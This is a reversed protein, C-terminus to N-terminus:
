QAAPALTLTTAHLNDSTQKRRCAQCLALARMARHDKERKDDVEVRSTGARLPLGAGYSEQVGHGPYGHANNGPVGQPADQRVSSHTASCARPLSPSLDSPHPFFFLFPYDNYLQVVAVDSGNSSTWRLGHEANSAQQRNCSQKENKGGGPTTRELLNVVGSKSNDATIISGVVCRRGHMM